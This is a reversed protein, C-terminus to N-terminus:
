ILTPIAAIVLSAMVMPVAHQQQFEYLFVMLTWMKPDQCVLFAHMFAGYAATFAGLAMVAMIPKCLPMTIQWFMRLEGAGDILGAEYLEPPLSDFFGKLLFISYGSAMAPLILAYFSNMLSVSIPVDFRAALRPIVYGALFVAVALAITASPLVPLRKGLRMHLLAFALLCAAVVLIQVVPFSKILLLNPIMLVEGPFAMTALLFLLIHHTEKLRFRSLAYAALPNVTLTTGILLIIYTATVQLSYGNIAIYEFVSGFNFTLYRRRLDKKQRSFDDYSATAMAAPLRADEFKAHSTGWAANLASLDGYRSRLFDWWFPEPRVLSLADLPCHKQVFLNWVSELGPDEPIRETLVASPNKDADHLYERWANQVDPHSLDIRVFRFPAARVFFDRKARQGLRGDIIDEYTVDVLAKATFDTEERLREANGYTNRVFDCAYADFLLLGTREPARTTLFVRLDALHPFRGERQNLLDRPPSLWSFHPVPDIYNYAKGVAEVSGYRNWLWRNYEHKLSTPTDNGGAIFAASKLEDPCATSLFDRWDSAIRARKAPDLDTVFRLQELRIDRARYWTDTHFAVALDMIQAYDVLYKKFLALDDYWFQPLLRFEEYDAQSTTATSFMLAFPYIMSLAGVALVVYMATTLARVSLSRHGVVSILPM